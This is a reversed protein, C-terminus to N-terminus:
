LHLFFGSVVTIRQNVEDGMSSPCVFKTETVNEFTSTWLSSTTVDYEEGDDEVDDLSQTTPFEM